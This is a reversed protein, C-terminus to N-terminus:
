GQYQKEPISIAFNKDLDSAARYICSYREFDGPQTRAACIPSPAIMIM